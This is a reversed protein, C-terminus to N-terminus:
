RGFIAGANRLIFALAFAREDYVELHEPASINKMEIVTEMLRLLSRAMIQVFVIVAIEQRPLPLLICRLSQRLLM